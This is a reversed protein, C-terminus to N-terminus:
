IARTPKKELAQMQLVCKEFMGQAQPLEFLQYTIRQWEADVPSDKRVAASVADFQGRAIWLEGDLPNNPLNKTFWDPPHIINGQHTQFHEGDWIARM